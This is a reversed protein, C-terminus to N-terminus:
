VGPAGRRELETERPLREAARVPGRRGSVPRQVGDACRTCLRSSTGARPKESFYHHRGRTCRGSSQHVRVFVRGLILLSLLLNNLGLGLWCYLPVARACACM